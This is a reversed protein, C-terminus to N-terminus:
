NEQCRIDAGPYFQIKCNSPFNPDSQSIYDYWFQLTATFNVAEKCQNNEWYGFGWRYSCGWRGYNSPDIRPYAFLCEMQDCISSNKELFTWTGDKNLRYLCGLQQADAGGAASEELWLSIVFLPNLNYKIAYNQVTKWDTLLKSNQWYTPYFTKIREYAQNIGTQTAKCNPNRYPLSYYSTKNFACIEKTTQPLSTSANPWTQQSNPLGNNMTPCNANPNTPTPTLTSIITPSITNTPNNTPNISNTITPNNTLTPTLSPTITPTNTPKPLLNISEDTIDQKLTYIAIGFDQTNTVGDFNLDTKSDNKQGLHSIITSIESASIKGDVPNFDGAYFLKNTLDLYNEGNIFVQGPSIRSFYKEPKIYVKYTQILDLNGLAIKIKFINDKEQTLLQNYLEIIKEYPNYIILQTKIQPNKIKSYDGQLKIRIDLTPYNAKSPWIFEKNFIFTLLFIVFILFFFGPLFFNVKFNKLNKNKM